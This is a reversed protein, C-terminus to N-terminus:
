VGATHLVLDVPSTPVFPIAYLKLYANVIVIDGTRMKHEYKDPRILAGNGDRINPMAIFCRSVNATGLTSSYIGDPDPM